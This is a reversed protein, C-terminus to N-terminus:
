DDITTPKKDVNIKYSVDIKHGNIEFNEKKTKNTWISIV